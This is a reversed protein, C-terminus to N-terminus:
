RVCCSFAVGVSQYLCVSEAIDGELALGLAVSEAVRMCLRDFDYECFVCSDFVVVFFKVCGRLHIM